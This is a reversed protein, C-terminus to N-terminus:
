RLALVKICLFLTSHIFLKDPSLITETRGRSGFDTWYYYFLPKSHEDM